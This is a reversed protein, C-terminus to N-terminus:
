PGLFRLFAGWFFTFFHAMFLGKEQVAEMGQQLILLKDQILMKVTPLMIWLNLILVTLCVKALALLRQKCWCKKGQLICVLGVFVVAFEFNLMSCPLLCSLGVALWVWSSKQERVGAFLRYLGYLILPWFCFVLTDNVSARGYMTYVRYPAWTYLMCGLFATKQEKFIGYFSEFSIFIVGLNIVALFICYSTQIPFGVIRLLAPFLLFLNGDLLTEPYRNGNCWDSQVSRWLHGAELEEKVQEIRLLQLELETGDLCYGTFLPLSVVIFIGCLAWLLWGYTANSNVVRKRYVLFADLIVSIVVLGLIVMYTGANTTTVEICGIELGMATEPQISLYLDEAPSTLWVNAEKSDGGASLLIEDAYVSRHYKSRTAVSITATGEPVYYDIRLELVGADHPKLPIELPMEVQGEFVQYSTNPQWIGPLLMLVLLCELIILVFLKRHSNWLKKVVEKM